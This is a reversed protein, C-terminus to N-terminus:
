EWGLKTQETIETFNLKFNPALKNSQPLIKNKTSGTKHKQKEHKQKEDDM